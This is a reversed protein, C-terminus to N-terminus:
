RALSFLRAADVDDTLNRSVRTIKATTSTPGFGVYKHNASRHMRIPVKATQNRKTKKVEQVFGMAHEAPYQLPVPDIGHSELIALNNQCFV